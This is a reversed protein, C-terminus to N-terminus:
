LFFLFLLVWRFFTRRIPIPAGFHFSPPVWGFRRGRQRLTYKTDKEKVHRKPPHQGWQRIPPLMHIKRCDTFLFTDNEMYRM